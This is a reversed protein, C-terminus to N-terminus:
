PEDEEGFEGPAFPEPDLTVATRLWMACVEPLEPPAAGDRLIELLHDWAVLVFVHDLHQLVPSHAIRLLGKLLYAALRPYFDSQALGLYLYPALALPSPKGDQLRPASVWRPARRPKPPSEALVSQQIKELQAVLRDLGGTLAAEREDTAGVLMALAFAWAATAGTDMGDIAVQWRRLGEQFIADSLRSPFECDDTVDVSPDTRLARALALNFGHGGHYSAWAVAVAQEPAACLESLTVTEVTNLLAIAQRWEGEAVAENVQELPASM